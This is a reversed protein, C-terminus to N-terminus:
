YCLIGSIETCNKGSGYKELTLILIDHDLLDFAKEIDMVVLFGDLKELNLLKLLM